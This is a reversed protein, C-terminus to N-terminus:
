RVDKEIGVYGTCACMHLKEKGKHQAGVQQFVDFLNVLIVPAKQQSSPNSQVVRM